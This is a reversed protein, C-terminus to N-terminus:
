HHFRPQKVARKEAEYRAGELERYGTDVLLRALELGFIEAAEKDDFTMSRLQFRRLEVMSRNSRVYDISGKPYWGTPNGILSKMVAEAGGHIWFGRHQDMM